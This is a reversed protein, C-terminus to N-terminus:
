HWAGISVGFNQYRPALDIFGGLRWIQDGFLGFPSFPFLKLDLGFTFHQRALHRAFRSPEIYTGIRTQLRDPV